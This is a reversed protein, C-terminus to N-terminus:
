FNIIEKKGKETRTIVCDKVAFFKINKWDNSHGLMVDFVHNLFEKEHRHLKKKEEWHIILKM